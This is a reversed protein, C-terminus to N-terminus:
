SMGIVRINSSTPVPFWGERCGEAEKLLVQTVTLMVHAIISNHGLPLLQLRSARVVTAQIQLRLKYSFTLNIRIKRRSIASYNLTRKLNGLEMNRNIYEREQDLFSCHNGDLSYNCLCFCGMPKLPEWGPQLEMLLIVRLPKLPEWSSQFEM